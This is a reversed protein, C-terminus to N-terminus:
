SRQHRPNSHWKAFTRPAYSRSRVELDHMNSWAFKMPRFVHREDKLTQLNGEIMQKIFKKNKGANLSVSHEVRLAKRLALEQPIVDKVAGTFCAYMMGNNKCKSGSFHPLDDAALFVRRETHHPICSLNPIEEVLGMAGMRFPEKTRLMDSGFLVCDLAFIFLPKPEARAISCKSSMSWITRVKDTGSDGGDGFDSARSYFNIPGDLKKMHVFCNARFGEALSAVVALIDTSRELRVCAFNEECTMNPTGNANKRGHLFGNWQKGHADFNTTQVGRFMPHSKNHPMRPPFSPLYHAKM